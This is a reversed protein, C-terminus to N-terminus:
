NDNSGETNDANNQGEEQYIQRLVDYVGDLISVNNPTAKIDLKQLAEFIVEIREKMKVGPVM